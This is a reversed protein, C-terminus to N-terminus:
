LFSVVQDIAVDQGNALGLTVGGSSSDLAVSTVQQHANVAMTVPEGNRVAEASVRYAGAPLQEGGADVGNWSVPLQGEAVPLDTSYVLRGSTDQIFLRAATVGAPVDVTAGLSLQEPDAAGAGGPALLAVNGETAVRRGVLNAAELARSATLSGSLGSFSEQLDQIGSVTGFQALQGMFQMNDMPKTPDQNELQAVMLALFDESGMQEVTRPGRDNASERGPFLESLSNVSDM